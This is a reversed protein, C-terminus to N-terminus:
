KDLIAPWIKDADAIFGAKNPLWKEQVGKSFNLYLKGNEISWFQAYGPALKGQAMAWACYGGYQPAFAEPNSKFKELNAANKFQWEVGKWETAFQKDGKVPQGEDFFAVTDYGGIAVKSFNATYIEPKAAFAAGAFGFLALLGAVFAVARRKIM